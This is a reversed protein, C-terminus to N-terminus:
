SLAIQGPGYVGRLQDLLVGDGGDHVDFLEAAGTGVVDSARLAVFRHGVPTGGVAGFREFYLAWRATVASDLQAPAADDALAVDVAVLRYGTHEVVPCPTTADVEPPIEEAAEVATALTPTEGIDALAVTAHDLERTM